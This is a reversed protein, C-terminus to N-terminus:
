TQGRAQQADAAQCARLVMAKAAMRSFALRVVPGRKEAEEELWGVVIDLNDRVWQSGLADMKAARSNCPCEDTAVIGFWALLRKLETGPGGESRRAPPAPRPHPYSPHTEDVTIQDGNEAIVCPAVQEWAYGRSRVRQEFLRRPGTIM